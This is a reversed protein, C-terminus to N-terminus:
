RAAPVDTYRPTYGDASFTFGNNTTESLCSVGADQVNCRFGAAALIKNLPLTKASGGALTLGPQDVWAFHPDGVDEVVIANPARTQGDASEVTIPAGRIGLSSTGAAQCGAKSRPLIACQWKGSPTTFYYGTHGNPTAYFDYANLLNANDPRTSTPAPPVPATQAPQQGTSVVVTPSCATALLAAAVVLTARALTARIV